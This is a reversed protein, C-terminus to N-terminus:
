SVCLRTPLHLLHPHSDRNPKFPKIKAMERKATEIITEKYKSRQIHLKDCQLHQLDRHLYLSHLDMM